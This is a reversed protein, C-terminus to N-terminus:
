SPGLLENEARIWNDESSNGGSESLEYARRAIDNHSAISRVLFKNKNDGSQYEGLVTVFQENYGSAQGQFGKDKTQSVLQLKGDPISGQSLFLNNGSAQILGYVKTYAAAAQAAQGSSAPNQVAIIDGGSGYIAGTPRGTQKEAEADVSAIIAERDATIDRGTTDVKGPKTKKSAGGSSKKAPVDGANAKDVAKMATDKTTSASVKSKQGSKAKPQDVAADNGEKKQKSQKKATVGTNASDSKIATQGNESKIGDAKNENTDTGSTSNKKNKQM